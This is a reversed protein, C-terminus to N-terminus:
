KLQVTSSQNSRYDSGLNKLAHLRLYNMLEDLQKGVKKQRDDIDYISTAKRTNKWTEFKKSRWDFSTIHYYKLVLSKLSEEFPFSDLKILLKSQILKRLIGERRLGNPWM